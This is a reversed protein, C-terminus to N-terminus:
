LGGASGLYPSDSAGIQPQCGDGNAPPKFLGQSALLSMESKPGSQPAPQKPESDPTILVEQPPSAPRSASNDAEPKMTAGQVLESGSVNETASAPKDAQANLSNLWSENLFGEKARKPAVLSKFFHKVWEFFGVLVGLLGTKKYFYPKLEKAKCDVVLHDVTTELKYGQDKVPGLTVSYCSHAQFYYQGNELLTTEGNNQNYRENSTLIEEIQVGNKLPSFNVNFNLGQYNIGYKSFVDYRVNIMSFSFIHQFGAQHFAYLFLASYYKKLNDDQMKYLLHEEIFGMLDAENKFEEDDRLEKVSKGSIFYHEWNRHWDVLVSPDGMTRKEVSGRLEQLAKQLLQDNFIAPAKKRMLKPKNIRSLETEIEIQQADFKIDGPFYLKPRVLGEAGMASQSAVKQHHGSAFLDSYIRLYLSRDSDTDDYRPFRGCLNYFMAAADYAASAGGTRDKGSKCAVWATAGICNIIMIEMAAMLSQRHRKDNTGFIEVRGQGPPISLLALIADFLRLTNKDFEAKGEDSLRLKLAKILEDKDDSSISGKDACDNLIILLDDKESIKELLYRRVAGLLLATNSDNHKTQEPHVSFRRWINLPHNTSLLTIKSFSHGKYELSGNDRVVFGWQRLFTKSASATPDSLARQFRKVAKEKMEYIKSDNDSADSLHQSKLTAAMGPSLLSQTLIVAESTEDVHSKSIQQELSLRIQSALNLYTLRLGEDDAHVRKLLDIPFPTAHRFYTLAKKNSIYFDHRSMNAVGPICRLSSPISKTCLDEWNAKIFDQQWLTLHQFWLPPDSKIEEYEQRLIESDVLPIESQLTFTEDTEFYERGKEWVSCREALLLSTFSDKLTTHQLLIDNYQELLRNFYKKNVNFPAGKDLRKAYDRYIAEINKKILDLRASFKTGTKWDIATLHEILLLMGDKYSEGRRKLNEVAKKKIPM